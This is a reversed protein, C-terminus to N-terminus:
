KKKGHCHKYIKGSSCPCLANEGPKELNDICKCTGLPHGCPLIMFNSQSGITLGLVNWHQMKDTGFTISLLIRKHKSKAYPETTHPFHDGLIIAEGISYEYSSTANDNTKYLLHNHDDDLDFLPTILTYANSGPFYDLHWLYNPARDGIVLFGCYVVIREDHDVLEKVDQEIDLTNFFRRYIDHTAQNNCSLWLLPSIGYSTLHYNNSSQQIVQAFVSGGELLHKNNKDNIFSEIDQHYSDRIENLLKEEFQFKFANLGNKLQTLKKM